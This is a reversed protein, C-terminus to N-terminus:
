GLALARGPNRFGSASEVWTKQRVPKEIKIKHPANDQAGRSSEVSPSSCLGRDLTDSKLYLYVDSVGALKKGEASKIDQLNMQSKFKMEM